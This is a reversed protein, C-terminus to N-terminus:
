SRNIQDYIAIINEVPTEPLAEHSPGLIIGGKSNWLNVVKKVEERIQKPNGNILLKQVDIGGHLCINEGYRSYIKELDMDKASTQVVDFVDIGAEIMFPLIDNVSGCCHWSFILDYKKVNEILRKYIPLFYKKFLKPDFMLGNQGAVDDWMFYWEAKKGFGALERKNFEICFEGVEKILYEALKKNFGLDYLFNEMGRLFSCIMFVENLAGMTIFDENSDKFNEYKLLDTDIQTNYKDQDFLRRNVMQNFDFYDLKSLFYDKKIDKYSSINALPPDIGINHYKYNYKDITVMKSNIGLAFFYGGEKVYPFDPAPATCKPNFTSFAGINDGASFFDSGMKILLSKYNKEINQFDEIEYYKMLKETLYPIGRYHTPIRDVPRLKIAARVREKKSIM